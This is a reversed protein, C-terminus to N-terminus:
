FYSRLYSVIQEMESPSLKPRQFSELLHDKTTQLKPYWEGVAPLDNAHRPILHLHLHMVTQGAEAGDQITWDFAETKFILKFQQAIRRSFAMLDAAEPDSLDLLSVAHRKPLVLIHGALIPALNYVARCFPSEAFSATEIAAKCFPCSLDKKSM